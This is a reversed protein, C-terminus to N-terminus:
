YQYIEKKLNYKESGDLKMEETSTAILKKGILKSWQNRFDTIKNMTDLVFYDSSAM